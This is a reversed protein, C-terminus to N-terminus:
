RGEIAAWQREIEDPDSVNRGTIQGMLWVVQIDNVFELLTEYHFQCIGFSPLVRRMCKRWEREEKSNCGLTALPCATKKLKYATPRRLHLPIDDWFEFWWSKEWGYCGELCGYPHISPNM